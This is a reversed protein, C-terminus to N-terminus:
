SKKKKYAYGWRAFGWLASLGVLAYIIKSIFSGVGFLVDIPNWNFFGVFGWNLAGIIMLIGAIYDIPNTKGM